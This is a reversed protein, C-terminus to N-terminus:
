QKGQHKNLVAEQYHEHAWRNSLLAYFNVTTGLKKHKLLQRVTEFDGPREKLYLFAAFHRFLHPNMRLGSQRFIEATLAQGMNGPLRAEGDGRRPFLARSGSALRHRYRLIYHHLLQSDRETLVVEIHAANKVESADIRITYRLGRGTGNAFIHRDLDLSSLNAIRMPCALLICIAAAYMARLPASKQDPNDDALSMLSAPMNVLRIVNQYDNFQHLRLSSKAAMCVKIPKSRAKLGKIKRIEEEPLHLHYRAIALLVALINYMTQSECDEKRRATIIQTARRIRDASVVERLSTFTEPDAGAESLASLYQRVLTRINRLTMPRLPKNPGGEEFIDKHSLRDIHAQLDDQLGQSYSTLPRSRYRTHRHATLPTFPTPQQRAVSNWTGATEACLSDPDKGLLRADLYARFQVLTADSVQDPEIRRVGCFDAFRSLHVMQYKSKAVGFFARWAASRPRRGSAPLHGTHRLAAALTSKVNALARATIGVQVPHIDALMRRLQPVAAPIDEPPRHLYTSVRSIASIMDRKQLDTLAPDVRLRDRVTALTVTPQTTM